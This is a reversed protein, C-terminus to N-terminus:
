DGASVRGHDLRVARASFANRDAVDHTVLLSPVAVDDLLVRLEARVRGRTEPDLATLPEDLLLAAPDFALARALAVRQRQGGSLEGVREHALSAIELRDLIRNVRANHDGTPTGRARLGFGVNAAVDLHPFLAYEQFVVGIDRRFPEVFTLEDYLVRGGLEIRGADPHLLGAILRLLTTKGAGSEGVVVTVGPPVELAVELSFDRLQKKVDVILM